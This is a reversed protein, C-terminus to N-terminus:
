GRPVLLWVNCCKRIVVLALEARVNVQWETVLVIPGEGVVSCTVTLVPGVRNCISPYWFLNVCAVGTVKM